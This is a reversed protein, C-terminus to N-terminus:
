AAEPNSLPAVVSNAVDDAQVKDQAAGLDEAVPTTSPAPADPQVEIQTIPMNEATSGLPTASEVQATESTCKAATETTPTRFRNARNSRKELEEETLEMEWKASNKAETAQAPASVIASEGAAKAQSEGFREARKQRKQLEEPSLVAQRRRKNDKSPPNTTHSVPVAKPVAKKFRKADTPVAFRMQLFIPPVDESVLIDPTRRWPEDGAKPFSLSELAKKASGSDGFIINASSDNIWEIYKHNFQSFIEAMHGTKLFDLGFVHVANERFKAATIDIENRPHSPQAEPLLADDGDDEYADDERGYNDIEGVEVKKESVANSSKQDRAVDEMHEGHEYQLETKTSVMANPSTANPPIKTKYTVDDPPKNNGTISPIASTSPVVFGARAIENQIDSAAITHDPGVPEEQVGSMHVMSEETGSPVMQNLPLAADPTGVTSSPVTFEMGPTPSPTTSNVPMSPVIGPPLGHEM